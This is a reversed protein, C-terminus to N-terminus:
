DEFSADLKGMFEVRIDDPNGYKELSLAFELAEGYELNKRVVVKKYETRGNWEYEEHRWVFFKTTKNM